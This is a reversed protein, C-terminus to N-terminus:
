ATRCQDEELATLRGLAHLSEALAPYLARYTRLLEAYRQTRAPNPHLRRESKLEVRAGIARLALLAPAAAEGAHPAVELILGTADCLASLLAANKTGGGGVRAMECRGTARLVRESLDLASLAVADIAARHLEAGSTQLSAGIIAGRADNDWVPAREGSFYPLMLLGGAGPPLSTAGKVADPGLLDASWDLLSGCSSTWGGFFWGEGHLPTVRLGDAARPRESVRGLILTSGLLIGLDDTRSMGIGALDVYSDCGGIAVPIGPPLGLRQALGPLLGGAIEQAERPQPLPVLSEIGRALHYAATARDITPQGTLAAVIWGAADVVWRARAFRTPQTERLWLLKPAVHDPGLEDEGLGHARMLRQRHVEARADMGFLPAPGVPQLAGDLLVPCPGLAGIAIADVSAAGADALAARAAAIAAELWSQPDAEVEGAIHTPIACRGRGILSGDSRLVAARAGSLGLDIGLAVRTVPNAGV